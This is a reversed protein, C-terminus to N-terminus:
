TKFSRLIKASEEPFVAVLEIGTGLELGAWFSTRPLIEIHWHYYRFDSPKVPATHIFFNYDPDQLAKKMKKLIDQLIEALFFREKPSIMEFAPQHKKPYIRTEFSVRPAFPNVAIFYENECIIRIKEKREYDLIQCHVCKQHKQFYIKSGQLSRQVDPPVIPLAILQSHPHSVSAGAKEGFNHFILIYSVCADKKLQLFRAQYLRIVTETEKLSFEAFTKQHPRTIIVEHWGIGDLSSYCNISKQQPCIKHFILAPYKNPIAQVFWNKFNKPYWIIPSSEPNEFPCKTKSQFKRSCHKIGKVGPRKQRSPSILIWDGSVIDQRFEPKEILGADKIM